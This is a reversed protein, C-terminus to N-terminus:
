PARSRKSRQGTAFGSTSAIHCLCNETVSASPPPPASSASSAPPSSSDCGGMTPTGFVLHIVIEGVNEGTSKEKSRRGTPDHVTVRRNRVHAYLNLGDVMGAPDVSTWRGIWSAYYRAGHYHLGTEDDREKGTYRYRKASVELKGATSHFSTAGFPYYEEYTIIQGRQDVEVWASNLHNSIQFRVRPAPSALVMGEDATLTEVM